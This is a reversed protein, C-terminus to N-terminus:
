PSPSDPPAQAVASRLEQALDCVAMAYNTSPNYRSIVFFNKFGLRYDVGNELVARILMVRTSNPLAVDLRVGRSRLSRLTQNLKLHGSAPPSAGSKVQAELLVPGGRQWGRQDLFDSIAAFVAGWDSWLDVSGPQTRGAAFQRYSSPMFQPAGLAGGYSGHLALPDENMEHALLLFQRLEYRFSAARAPYNFALTMLTDIERYSGPTQGYNTEVGLIAVLYEPPVGYTLAAQDLLDKHQLWFRHGAAVREPTVFRARYQWWALETEVPHDMAATLEPRVTAAGLVAIVWERPLGDRHVLRDIFTAIEPRALDFGPGDARADTASQACLMSSALLLPAWLWLRALSWFDAARSGPLRMKPAHEPEYPVQKFIWLGM